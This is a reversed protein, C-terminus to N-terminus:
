VETLDGDPRRPLDPPTSSSLLRPKDGCRSDETEGDGAAKAEGDAKAASERDVGEDEAEDGVGDISVAEEPVPLHM